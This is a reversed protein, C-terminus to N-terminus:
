DPSNLPLRHWTQRLAAAAPKARPAISNASCANSRNSCKMLSSTKNAVIPLENVLKKGMADLRTETHLLGTVTHQTQTLSGQLQEIRQSFDEDGANSRTQLRQLSGHLRESLTEVKELREVIGLLARSRTDDSVAEDKRPSYHLLGHQATQPALSRHRHRM